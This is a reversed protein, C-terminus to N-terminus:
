NGRNDTVNPTITFLRSLGQANMTRVHVMYRGPKLKGLAVIKELPWPTLSCFNTGVLEMKPKVVIIDDLYEVSVEKWSLCRSGIVGTLVIQVEQNADMMEPIFFNSVPAYIADDTDETRAAAVSFTRSSWGTGDRYSIKYEGAKLVGLSIEKNFSGPLTLHRPLTALHCERTMRVRAIQRIYFVNNSQDFRVDTEAVQQCQNTLTGDLMVQINDNSDYGTPPIFIRGIKAEVTHDAFANFGLVTLAILLLKRM